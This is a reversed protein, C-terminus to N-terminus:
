RTPREEHIVLIFSLTMEPILPVASCYASHSSEATHRRNAHHGIPTSDKQIGNLVAYPNGTFLLLGNIFALVCRLNMLCTSPTQLKGHVSWWLELWHSLNM